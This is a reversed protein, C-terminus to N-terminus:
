LGYGRKEAQSANTPASQTPIRALESQWYALLASKMADFSYADVTRQTEALYAALKPGGCDFTAVAAALANVCARWDGSDAWWGNASTMYELGGGGHFGALVCGSAMAELPPLGLPDKDSLSLFIASQALVNAVQHKPMKDIAIWPVDSYEPFMRLFNHRIFVIDGVLKRPMFAIQRIKEVKRHYVMTDIAYPILPIDKLKYIDELYARNAMCTTIVGDLQYEDFGLEPNETFPLYYYNQCLMLRRAPRGRVVRMYGLLGEPFICIDHETVDLFDKYIITSVDTQYFDQAPQEPMAIWAAIGNDALIRVHEVITAVGGFPMGFPALFFILRSKPSKSRDIRGEQSNKWNNQQPIANLETFQLARLWLDVSEQPLLLHDRQPWNINKASLPEKILYGNNNLSFHVYAQDTIFKILPSLEIAPLLEVIIGPRKESVIRQAGELVAMDHGEVDIKLLLKEDDKLVAGLFGDLTDVAVDVVKEHSPRFTANLSASTEILGHSADPYYIQSIGSKNSLALRQVQIKKDLQSRKINADLMNAVGEAPEFAIVATAGLAASLLSYYGSNAGIDVFVLPLNSSWSAILQPLPAEYSTWGKKFAQVAVQDRLGQLSMWFCVSKGPLEVRIEAFGAIVRVQSARLDDPVLDPLQVLHVSKNFLGKLLNLVM